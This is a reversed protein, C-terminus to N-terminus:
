RLGDRHRANTPTGWTSVEAAFLRVLLWGLAVAVLLPVSARAPIGAALVFALAVVALLGPWTAGTDRSDALAEIHSRQFVFAGSDGLRTVPALKGAAVWRSLTSRDISLIDEAERSGILDTASPM